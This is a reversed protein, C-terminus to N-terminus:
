KTAYHSECKRQVLNLQVRFEDVMGMWRPPNLPIEENESNKDIGGTHLEDEDVAEREEGPVNAYGNATVLNVREEDNEDGNGVLQGFRSFIIRQKHSKNRLLNFTETHSRFAM